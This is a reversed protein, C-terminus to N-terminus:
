EAKPRFRGLNWCELWLGPLDLLLGAMASVPACSVTTGMDRSSLMFILGSEIKGTEVLSFPAEFEGIMTSPPIRRLMVALLGAPIVLVVM